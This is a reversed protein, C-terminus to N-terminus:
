LIIFFELQPVIEKIFRALIANFANTQSTLYVIKILKIVDEKLTAMDMRVHPVIEIQPIKQPVARIVKV